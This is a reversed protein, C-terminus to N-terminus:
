SSKNSIFFNLLKELNISSQTSHFTDNNKMLEDEIGPYIEIHKEGLISQSQISASSDIPIKYKKNIKLKIDAAFTKSDLSVSQVEGVDVGSIKVLSGAKIGSASSFESNLYYFSQNLSFASNIAQYLFWVFVGIVFFGFILDFKKYM